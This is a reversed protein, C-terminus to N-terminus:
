GAADAGGEGRRRARWRRAREAGSLPAGGGSPVPTVPTVTETVRLTVAPTVPTVATVNRTVAPTVGSAAVIGREALDCLRQIDANRPIARRVREVLLMDDAASM